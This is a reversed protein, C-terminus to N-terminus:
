AVRSARAARRAEFASIDLEVEDYRDLGAIFAEADDRFLQRTIGLAIRETSFKLQSIGATAGLSMMAGFSHCYLRSLYPAAGSAKETFQFDGSLYPYAGLMSSEAGKPPTYRDSWVAIKHAFRALEPRLALDVVFGTGVILFDYDFVGGPTGLRVHGDEFTVSEIPSGLHLDFADFRACREFTDQPPPQNLAFFRRMFRWKAEDDLDAFHRIYGANEIYRNPNVKPLSRRRAFVDVASAGAELAMAANDFASAGAGIVGVRKGNLAAFDIPEATHAYRERPLAQKVVTPVQWKGAGEIGTALVVHRALLREAKGAIIARVDFLDDALPEIDIVAADNTVDIGVTSQLWGLYDHWDARPIKNVGAWAAAGFKAEYWARISLGPLGLEPGSVHKPTRLTQMRAYTIWPGSQGSPSRDLVRVNTVRERLLRFALALGNQGGGVILVDLVPKGDHQRPVVWERAPYAVCDLEFRVRKALEDLSSMTM